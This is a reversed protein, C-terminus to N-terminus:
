LHFMFINFVETSPSSAWSLFKFQKQMSFIPTFLRGPSITVSKSGLFRTFRELETRLSLRFNMLKPSGDKLAVSLGFKEEGGRGYCLRQVTRLPFVQVAVPEHRAMTKFSHAFRCCATVMNLIILKFSPFKKLLFINLSFYEVSVVLLNQSEM